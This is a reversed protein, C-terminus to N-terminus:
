SEVNWPSIMQMMKMDEVEGDEEYSDLVHIYGHDLALSMVVVREKRKKEQMNAVALKTQITCCSLSFSCRSRAVNVVTHIELQFLDKPFCTDNLLKRPM